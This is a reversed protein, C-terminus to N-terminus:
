SSLSHHSCNRQWRNKRTSSSVLQVEVLCTVTQTEYIASFMESSMLQPAHLLQHPVNAAYASYKFKCRTLSILSLQCSNKKKIKLSKSV